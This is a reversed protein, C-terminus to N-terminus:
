AGCFFLLFFTSVGFWRNMLVDSVYAGMAGTWNTVAGRNMALDPWFPVNEIKSQDAGGTFFFSVMALAVYITLIELLLGTIFRTRECVFFMKM